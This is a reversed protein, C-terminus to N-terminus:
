VNMLPPMRLRERLCLFLLTGAAKFPKEVNVMTARITAAPNPYANEFAQDYMVIVSLNINPYANEAAVYCNSNFGYMKDGITVITDCYAAGSTPSFYATGQTSHFWGTRM